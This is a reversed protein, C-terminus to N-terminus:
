GRRRWRSSCSRPFPQSVLMAGGDAGSERYAGERITGETGIVAIRGSRSAECAAQAGPEIVGSVPLSEFRERICPLGMASATNCAVVICKVGHDVLAEAAQVAYHAM